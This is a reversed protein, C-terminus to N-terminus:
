HADDVSIDAPYILGCVSGTSQLLRQEDIWCVDLHVRGSAIDSSASKRFPKYPSSVGVGPPIIHGRLLTPDLYFWLVIFTTVGTLHTVM